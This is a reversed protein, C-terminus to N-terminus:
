REGDRHRQREREENQIHTHTHTGREKERDDEEHKTYGPPQLEPRASLYTKEPATQPLSTM